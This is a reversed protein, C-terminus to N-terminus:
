KNPTAVMTARQKLELSFQGKEGPYDQLVINVQAKQGFCTLLAVKIGSKLQERLYLEEGKSMGFFSFPLKVSIYIRGHKQRGGGRTLGKSVTIRISAM